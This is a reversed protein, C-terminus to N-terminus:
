QIDPGDRDMDKTTWVIPKQLETKKKRRHFFEIISFIVILLISGIITWAQFPSYVVFNLFNIWMGMDPTNLMAVSNMGGGDFAAENPVNFRVTPSAEYIEPKTNNPTTSVVIARPEDGGLFWPRKEIFTNGITGLATVSAAVATWRAVRVATPTDNKKKSM